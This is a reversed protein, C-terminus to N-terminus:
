LDRRLCGIIDKFGVPTGLFLAWLSDPHCFQPFFSYLFLILMLDNGSFIRLTGFHMGRKMLFITCLVQWLVSVRSFGKSRM